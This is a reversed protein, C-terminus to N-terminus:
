LLSLCVIKPNRDKYVFSYSISSPVSDTASFANQSKPFSISQEYRSLIIIGDDTLLIPCEGNLLYKDSIM